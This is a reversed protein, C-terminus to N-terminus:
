HNVTSVDLDVDSTVADHSLRYYEINNNLSKQVSKLQVGRILVFPNSNM